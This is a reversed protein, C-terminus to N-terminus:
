RFATGKFFTYCFIGDDNLHTRHLGEIGQQWTREDILKLDLSQMKVGEVMPIITKSVFSERLKPSSKDIYVIKPSVRINRFQSTQLLPFLQRGVLSNGGLRRQVKVLCNWTDIAEKTEPHFYCSGHDGEFVTISGDKKMYKKLTLLGDVPYALHELLHCLFIHDVSEDEIPLNFIDAEIFEVNFIKHREILERACLLSDESHDVSLFKAEPNNRALSLTQAGVGCGPELVISGPPYITNLHILNRVSDAQDYLRETERVSYGHVYKSYDKM